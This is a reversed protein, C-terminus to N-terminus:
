TKIVSYVVGVKKVFVIGNNKVLEVIADPTANVNKAFNEKGDVRVGLIFFSVFVFLRNTIKLFM